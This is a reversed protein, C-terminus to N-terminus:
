LVKVIATTTAMLIGGWVMDLIAAEWKYKKFMALNTLDFVGYIIFGFLFADLVSRNKDLIFHNLGFILFIYCLIAPLLNLKMAVRRISAVMTGFYNGFIGLYIVDLALLLIASVIYQEVKKM